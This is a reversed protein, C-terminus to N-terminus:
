CINMINKEAQFIPSGRSSVGTGRLSELGQILLQYAPIVQSEPNKM